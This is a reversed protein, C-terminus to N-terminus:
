PFLFNSFLLILTFILFLVMSPVLLLLLWQPSFLVPLIPLAPALEELDPILALKTPTITSSYSSLLSEAKPLVPPLTSNAVVTHSLVNSYIPTPASTEVPASITVASASISSSLLQMLQQIDSFLVAIQTDRDASLSMGHLEFLHQQLASLSSM